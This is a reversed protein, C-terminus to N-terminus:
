LKVGRYKDTKRAILRQRLVSIFLLLLGAEILFVLLKIGIPIGPESFFTFLQFILLAAMGIILMIWGIISLGKATPENLTKDMKAEECEPYELQRISNKIALLDLYITKCTDCDELHVQVMQREQQTLEQDIYGSILTQTKDCLNM